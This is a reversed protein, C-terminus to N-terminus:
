LQRCLEGKEDEKILKRPPCAFAFGDGIVVLDCCIKRVGLGRIRKKRQCQYLGCKKREEDPVAVKGSLSFLLCWVLSLRITGGWTESNDRECSNKETDFDRCQVIHQKSAGHQTCCIHVREEGCITQNTYWEETLIIKENDDSEAAGSESVASRPACRFKQATNNKNQDVVEDPCDQTTNCLISGDEELKYFKGQRHSTITLSSFLLLSPLWM